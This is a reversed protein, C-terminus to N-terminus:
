QRACSFKKLQASTRSPLSPPEHLVSKLHTRYVDNWFGICAHGRYVPFVLSIWDDVIVTMMQRETIAGEVDDKARAYQLMNWMVPCELLFNMADQFLTSFREM